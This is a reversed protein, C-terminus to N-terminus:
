LKLPLFFVSTSQELDEVITLAHIHNFPVQIGEHSVLYFDFFWPSTIYKDVVTGAPVNGSRGREDRKDAPFL